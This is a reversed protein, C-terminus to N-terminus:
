CCSVELVEIPKSNLVFICVKGRCIRIECFNCKLWMSETVVSQKLLQWKWGGVGGGVGGMCPINEQFTLLSLIMVSVTPTIHQHIFM